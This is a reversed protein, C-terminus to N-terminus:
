PLPLDKLEFAIPVAAIRGPTRYVLKWDSFKGLLVRKDPEDGFRYTVIAKDETQEDTETLIPPVRQRIGDKEKELYIQNNLLWSQFSEFKPGTTPYELLLKAKWLQEGEEGGENLFQRLSVSVGERTEKLAEAPKEVKHLRAFTFTLMKTPGVVHLKGKLLALKTASRHPAALRLPLETATRGGVAAMGKGEEPVEVVRGKDDQVVLSDPQTEMFLPRFRPEWAVELSVNCFHAEPELNQILALRRVTVRFLGSYSVPLVLYPGDVLAIKGDKEYLSVRADAARAIADLAPWFPVKKLDLKIPTQEKVQRRDEVFNGTQEALAALAKALPIAQSQLTFPRPALEKEIESEQPTTKKKDAGAAPRVLVALILLLGALCSAATFAACRPM